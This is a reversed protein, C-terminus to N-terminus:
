AGAPWLVLPEGRVRGREKKAGPHMGDREPSLRADMTQAKVMFAKVVLVLVVESIECAGVVPTQVGATISPMAPGNSM